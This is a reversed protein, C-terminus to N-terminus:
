AHAIAALQVAWAGQRWKSRPKCGKRLHNVLDDKTLPASTSPEASAPLVSSHLRTPHRAAGPPAPQVRRWRMAQRQQMSASPTSFIM